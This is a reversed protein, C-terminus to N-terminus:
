DSLEEFMYKGLFKTVKSKLRPFVCARSVMTKAMVAADFKSYKHFAVINLTNRSDDQFFIEDGGSMMELNMTAKLVLALVNVSVAYAVLGFIWGFFHVYLALMVYWATLQLYDMLGYDYSQEGM